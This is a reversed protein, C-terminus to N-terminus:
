LAPKLNTQFIISNFIIKYIFHTGCVQTKEVNSFYLYLLIHTFIYLRYIYLSVIFITLKKHMTIIPLFKDFIKAEVIYLRITNRCM